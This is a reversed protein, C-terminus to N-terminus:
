FLHSSEKRITRFAEEEEDDSSTTLDVVVSPAATENSTRVTSTPRSYQTSALDNSRAGANKDILNSHIASEDIEHIGDYTAAAGCPRYDQVAVSSDKEAEYLSWAGSSEIVVQNVEPGTSQLISEVYEDIFIADLNILKNCIPCVWTPAQLQLELFCVADFCQTHACQWSRSPHAMRLTSLPCKLSMISSTTMVESNAKNNAIEHMVEHAPKRHRLGIDRVLESPPHFRVLYLMMLYKRLTLAYTVTIKNESSVDKFLLDTIDPPVATGPKNKLGKLNAKLEINNIKIEVHQPFSVEIRRRLSYDSTTGCVLLARSNADTKLSHSAAKDLRATM